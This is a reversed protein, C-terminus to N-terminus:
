FIFGVTALIEAIRNKKMKPNRRSPTKAGKGVFSGLDIRLGRM